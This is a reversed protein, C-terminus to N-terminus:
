RDKPSATHHRQRLFHYLDRFAPMVIERIEWDMQRLDEASFQLDLDANLKLGNQIAQSPEDWELQQNPHQRNYDQLMRWGRTITLRLLRARHHLEVAGLMNLNLNDLLAHYNNEFRPFEEQWSM